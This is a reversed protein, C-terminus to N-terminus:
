SPTGSGAPLGLAQDWQRGIRQTSLRELVSRAAMGLREREAKDALLSRMAETLGDVGRSVDVLVGDERHRILEAPGTPCNMAIAPLGHAMAEALTNPFGEFRSSMVYLSARAYWDGPNGARGPFHARGTLHLKRTLQELAQREEGEGIVVLDWDPFEGALEAFARLLLDFGKQRDLRGMALLLSRDGAIISEPALRPQTAPLPLSLPNAIVTTTSAPCNAAVWAAGECTQMVVMRARRYCLRRLLRWIRPLRMLPPYVRESVVVPVGTGAAAIIAAVNVRTLFSVVLDPREEAIIRRLARLRALSTARSQVSDALYRLRVGADLPYVCGGRGSYTPMLLVDHGQAAWRNSLTAAVREAGGGHMSSVLFLIRRAAMRQPREGAGEESM